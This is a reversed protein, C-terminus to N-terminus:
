MHLKNFTKAVDLEGTVNESGPLPPYRFDRAASSEFPFGSVTEEGADSPGSTAPVGATDNVAVDLLLVFGMEVATGAIKVEETLTESETGDPVPLKGEAVKPFIVKPADSVGLIEPSVAILNPAEGSGDVLKDAADVVM